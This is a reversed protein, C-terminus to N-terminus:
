MGIGAQTYYGEMEGLILESFYTHTYLSIRIYKVTMKSPLEKNSLVKITTCIHSFQRWNEVYIVDKMIKWM